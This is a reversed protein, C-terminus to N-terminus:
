ETEKWSSVSYSGSPGSTFSLDAMGSEYTVSPNGSTVLRYATAEKLAASGSLTMTGYPAYLIVAGSGGSVTVASTSSSTTAIVMYSGTTGSGDAFGSGSFTLTGDSVIIGDNSGYSSALKVKGSGSISISGTVWLPGTMTLIASGSITLNGTIKKPGLSATSSGSLSYNGSYTGGASAETQWSTINSDSIPFAIYVPDAQSTNCSKNNGTGTQCYITGPTTSYNVTHANINGSVTGVDFQNWQSGSSGYVTGYVGGLYVNFYYDLGSPTTNNWTGSYAGIKGLGSGYGGTSAGITFYKTSSTGADIVVWYTTGATLTPNTTFSVDVWGYSTGVSAANLIGTAVVTTSPSSGSNTVIYVNPSTPTSTKKIYFSVKNILGSTSVQFSQAIDQTSSANAFTVNNAPTGSGNSQDSALAPSNASTASGTIISSTNGDIPGNSYVNGTITGGGMSLGGLGVQVGYTFSTGATTSLVLEVKRQYSSTDSLTSIEKQGGGLDTITTTATSTGLVLFESTSIQKSNKIRYFADEVGSEALFYTQKSSLSENAIQFERITPTVIGIIVTLSGFLLFIVFIMMAAGRNYQLKKTYM